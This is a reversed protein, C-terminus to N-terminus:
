IIFKKDKFLKAINPAVKYTEGKLYNKGCKVNRAMTIEIKKVAKRVPDKGEVKTKKAKAPEKTKEMTTITLLKLRESSPEFARWGM